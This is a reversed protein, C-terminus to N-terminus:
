RRKWSGGLLLVVASELGGDVALELHPVSRIQSRAWAEVLILM